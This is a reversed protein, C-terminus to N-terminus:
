HIIASYHHTLLAVAQARKSVNLKQYIRKLHSKVTNETINLISAIEQNTKGVRIWEVVELERETLASINIPAVTRSLTKTPESYEIKRLAHDIHPMLLDITADKIQFKNHKNFFMYLSDNGARPDSVGYVLLSSLIQPFDPFILRFKCDFESTALNNLVYFHRQQNLWREYLYIMCQNVERSTGILAHTSLGNLRSCVDYHLKANEVGDSFNGRVVLLMDSPIFESVSHQLWNFFDNQKKIAVSQQITYFLRQIFYSRAEADM